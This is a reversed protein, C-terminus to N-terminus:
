MGDTWTVGPAVQIAAASGANFSNGSAPGGSGLSLFSNASVIVGGASKLSISLADSLFRCNTITVGKHIALTSITAGPGQAYVNLDAAGSGIGYNCHSFDCNNILVSTAPAGEWWNNVDCRVELAPGSSQNVSCNQIQAVPIQLWFGRARNQAVTTNIISVNPGWSENAIVSGLLLADSVDKDVVISITPYLGYPATSSVVKTTFTPHFPDALPAFSILDGPRLAPLGTKSAAGHQVSIARTGTRGASVLNLRHLSVGDDGMRALTCGVIAVDGRCMTFHMGDACTSLWRGSGAPVDVSSNTVTIASSDCFVLGMGPSSYVSLGNCSLGAATTSAVAASGYTKFRVIVYAGDPLKSLDMALHAQTATTPVFTATTAPWFDNARNSTPRQNQLDYEFVSTVNVPGAPMVSPSQIEVTAGSADHAVIKAQVFPLPSWDFQLNNVSTNRCLDIELGTQWSHVLLLAGNGEITVGIAKWLFLCRNSGAPASIDYTGPPFFVTSGPQGSSASLANQIAVTDDIGDNPKAGYAAVSITQAAVTAAGLFLLAAALGLQNFPKHM